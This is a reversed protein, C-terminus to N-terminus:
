RLMYRRWLNGPAMVNGCNSWRIDSNIRMKYVLKTSCQELITTWWRPYAESNHPTKFLTHRLEVESYESETSTSPPGIIQLRIEFTIRDASWIDSQELNNKWTRNWRGVTYLSDAVHVTDISVWSHVGSYCRKSFLVSARCIWLLIWNRHSVMAWQGSCERKYWENNRRQQDEAM